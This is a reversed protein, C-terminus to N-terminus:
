QYALTFNAVSKFDGPVIASYATTASAGSGSITSEGQLFAAFTLTNEGDSVKTAITPEGLKIDTGGQTLVISAGSATGTLGLNNANAKSPTGTFTTTVTKDTLDSIDCSQLKINFNQPASKGGKELAKNAVSGLDVTQDVSDPAISCPAKIISGTFTVSGSGQNAANATSVLSGMALTALVAAILNKNMNM